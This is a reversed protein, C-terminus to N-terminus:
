AADGGTASAPRLACDAANLRRVRLDIRGEPSASAAAIAADIADVAAFCRDALPAYARDGGTAEITTAHTALTELELAVLGANGLRGASLFRRADSRLLFYARLSRDLDSRGAHAQAALFAQGAAPGGPIASALPIM